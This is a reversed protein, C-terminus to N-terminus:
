SNQSCFVSFIVEITTFFNHVFSTKACILVVMKNCLAFDLNFIHPQFFFAFYFNWSLPQFIFINFHPKILLNKIYVLSFVEFMNKSVSIIKYRLKRCVKYSFSKFSSHFEDSMTVNKFVMQFVSPTNESLLCFKVFNKVFSFHRTM